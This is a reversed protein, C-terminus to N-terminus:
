RGVTARSQIASAKHWCRHDRLRRTVTSVTCNGQLGWLPQAHIHACSLFKRKYLAVISFHCQKIYCHQHQQNNTIDCAEPISQFNFGVELPPSSTEPSIHKHCPVRLSQRHSWMLHSEQHKQPESVSTQRQWMSPQNAKGKHPHAKLEPIEAPGGTIGPM